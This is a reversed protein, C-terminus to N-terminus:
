YLPFQKKEHVLAFKYWEIGYLRRFFRTLM